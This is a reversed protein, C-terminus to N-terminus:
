AALHAVVSRVAVSQKKALHRAVPGSCSKLIAERAKSARAKAPPDYFDLDESLIVIVEDYTAVLTVALAIYHRDKSTKPFGFKDALLKILAACSEVTM